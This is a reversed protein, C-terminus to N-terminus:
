RVMEESFRSSLAEAPASGPLPLAADVKRQLESQAVVPHPDGRPPWLVVPLEGTARYEIRKLDIWYLFVAYLLIFRFGGLGDLLGLRLVYRYLFYLLPRGPLRFYLKRLWRRRQVPTGFFRPNTQGTLDGKLLAQAEMSSYRNHRDIWHGLSKYDHHNIPAAIVGVKGDVLLHENVARRDFRGKGHRWLRTNGNPYFGGWKLWRGMFILRWNVIFANEQPEANFLRANVERRFAETAREDADLKLVWPQSIPLRSLAWNWQDSYNEFRHQVM